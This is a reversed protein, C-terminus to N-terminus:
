KVFMKKLADIMANSDLTAGAIADVEVSQGTIVENFFAELQADEMYMNDRGNTIEMNTIKGGAVDVKLTFEGHNGKILQEYSGDPKGAIDYEEVKMILPSAVTSRGGFATDAASRGTAIAEALFMGNQYLNSVFSGLEGAEYLNPIVSGDWRLVQAKTNREAGGTTGVLTPTIAVAYYPATDIPSMTEPNRDYESDKGAKAMKNYSEITAKLSEPDRGLKEALEDITDAKIIWGKELEVSNDDSWQYGETTIPWSLWKTVIPGATRTKEDFILHVPLVREHILDMYHGHEKYKMHQRHYAGTENYFRTNDAAVEIWSSGAMSFNRMFTAEFDPVKIGLWFGGSQTQNKMHWIKAGAAMLVQIADGTDGPTGGTYVMDMGHFDRQMELNNEFGGCALVVGKQSGITFEKGSADTAVVGLVTGDADQILSKFSTEFCLEINNRARVALDFGRWVGGNEFTTGVKRVHSSCGSFSAGDLDPFETVLSGWNIPGGGVYGFEYDVKEVTGQIWEGQEAFEKVLYDLYEDKIPNPQSCALLYRRFTDLDDPNPLIVTQGSAISNGGALREPMKELVCIKANPDIDNAELAACEGALGYGVVLFDVEKDYSAPPPTVPADSTPAPDKSGCASLLGAMALSATGAASGKLFDRRSLKKAM